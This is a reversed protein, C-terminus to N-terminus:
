GPEGDVVEEFERPLVAIGNPYRLDVRIPRNGIADHVRKYRQLRSQFAHRGFIVATGSQWQAMWAGRADVRLQQVDEGVDKLGDRLQRYREFVQAVSGDPGQLLPLEPLDGSDPISFVSGDAAILRTENWRAVPQYEVVQVILTDPWKKRVVATKVWPTSEVVSQIRELDIAFFDPDAAASIRTQLAPVSVRNLNGEVQVWKLEADQQAFVTASFLLGVMIRVHKM